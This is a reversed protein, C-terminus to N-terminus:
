PTKAPLLYLIWFAIDCGWKLPRRNLLSDRHELIMLYTLLRDIM